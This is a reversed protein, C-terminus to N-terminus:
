RWPYHFRPYQISPVLVLQATVSKQGKQSVVGTCIYLVFIYPKELGGMRANLCNTETPKVIYSYGALIAINSAEHM